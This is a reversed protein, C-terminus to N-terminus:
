CAANLTPSVLDLQAHARFTACHLTPTAVVRDLRIDTIHLSIINYDFKQKLYM